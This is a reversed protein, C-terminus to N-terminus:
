RLKRRGQTNAIQKQLRRRRDLAPSDTINDLTTTLDSTASDKLFQTKIEGELNKRV